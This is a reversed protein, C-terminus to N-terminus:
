CHLNEQARQGAQEDKSAAHPVQVAMSSSLPQMMAVTVPRDQDIAWRVLVRQPGQPLEILVSLSIMPEARGLDQICAYRSQEKSGSSLM